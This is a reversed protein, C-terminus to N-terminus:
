DREHYFGGFIWVRNGVACCSHHYRPRNLWSHDLKWTRTKLDLILSSNLVQENFETHEDNVGSVVIIVHHSPLYAAAANRHPSLSYQFVNGGLALCDYDSRTIKYFATKLTNEM